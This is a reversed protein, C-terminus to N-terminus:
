IYFKNFIEGTPTSNNWSSYVSPCVHRLWYRSQFIAIKSFYEFTFNGLFRELPLRTTGHPVFPRVSMVFGIPKTM